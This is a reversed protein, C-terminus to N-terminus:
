TNGLRNSALRRRSSACVKRAHKTAFRQPHVSSSDPNNLLSGPVMGSPWGPRPKVIVSEVFGM